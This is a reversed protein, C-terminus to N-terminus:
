EVPIAVSNLRETQSIDFVSIMIFRPRTSGNTDQTGDTEASEVPKASKRTPAWIMISQEGRRVTRGVKRWQIFGGVVRARPCQVAILHRNNASLEWGEVTSTRSMQAALEARQDDTMGAIQHTLEVFRARRAEQSRTTM